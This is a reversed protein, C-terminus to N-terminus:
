DWSVKSKKIFFLVGNYGVSYVQSTNTLFLSFTMGADIEIIGELSQIREMEFYNQFADLGLQEFINNGFSWVQNKSTLLLSFYNGGSVMLIKESFPLNIQTFTYVSSINQTNNGLGLQGYTNYGSSFLAQQDQYETLILSHYAGCDIETVNYFGPVM